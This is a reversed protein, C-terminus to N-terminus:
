IVDSLFSLLYHFLFTGAAKAAAYDNGFLHNYDVAFKFLINHVIYKQGGM